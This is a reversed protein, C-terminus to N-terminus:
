AGSRRRAVGISMAVDDDDDDHAAASLLLLWLLSSQAHRGGATGTCHVGM